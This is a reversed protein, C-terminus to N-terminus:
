NLSGDYEHTLHATAEFGELNTASWHSEFKAFTQHPHDRWHDQLEESAYCNRFALNSTFLRWPDVGKRRGEANLLVGHTRDEALQYQSHLLEDYASRCERWAAFGERILASM